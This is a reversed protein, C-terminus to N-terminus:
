QPRGPESQLSGALAREFAPVPTSEEAPAQALETVLSVHMPTMGILLRRGEVAVVVLSRRDGLSVATEVHVLGAMRRGPLTITGRRVLWALLGLLGLVFTTALIGRIAGGTSSVSAGLEPTQALALVIPPM